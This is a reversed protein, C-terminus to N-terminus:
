VWKVCPWVGKGVDWEMEQRGGEGERGWVCVM